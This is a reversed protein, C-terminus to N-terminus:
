GIVAWVRGQNETGFLRGAASGIIVQDGNLPNVAFNFGGTYPWQPDPVPGPNNAQLLGFTRAVGNVRFFENGVLGSNGGCCPWFYQYVTGLGQQDTAVGTADGGPGDWSLNGNTLINPDSAPGATDQASGVFLAGAIQAALNSPQVAGYYFQTIQLNGNRSGSAFPSTGIGTSFVGNNDVASFVGQDDGIIIRAHGTLPDVETIIRHQ